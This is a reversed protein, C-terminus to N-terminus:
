SPLKLHEPFYVDSASHLIRTQLGQLTPKDNEFPCKPCANDGSAMDYTGDM